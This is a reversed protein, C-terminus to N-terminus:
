FENECLHRGGLFGELSQASSDQERVLVGPPPTTLSLSRSNQVRRPITSGLPHFGLFYM